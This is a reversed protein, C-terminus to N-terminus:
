LPGTASGPEPFRRAMAALGTVLEQRLPEGGAADFEEDLRDLRTQLLDKDGAEAFQSLAFAATAAVQLNSGNLRRKLIGAVAPSYFARALPYLSMDESGNSQAVNALEREIMPVAGKGQWRAFYALLNARTDPQWKPSCAAYIKLLDPAIASSAYRAALRTKIDLRVFDGSEKLPALGRISSLLPQDLESLQTDPLRVLVDAPVLSDASRIEALVHPRAREPAVDLLASILPQRLSSYVGGALHARELMTEIAEALSPDKLKPWFLQLVPEVDDLDLAALQNRLIAYAAQEMEPKVSGWRPALLTQAAALRAAIPRAALGAFLQRLYAARVEDAEAKDRSDHLAAMTGILGANVEANPNRFEQELLELVLPHNRCTLLWSPEIEAFPPDASPHLYRRVKERAAADGDLYSLRRLADRRQQRDPSSDITSALRVVEAAEEDPSTADIDFSVANTALTAGRSLSVLETGQRVRATHIEVTYHGPKDFRFWDNLTMRVDVPQETLEAVASYDPEYSENYIKSVGASTTIVIEDDPRPTQTVTLNISYRHPTGSFSLRLAIPEDMHFLAGPNALSLEARVEGGDQPFIPAAAAAALCLSALLNKAKM